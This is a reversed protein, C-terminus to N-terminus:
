AQETGSTERDVKVIRVHERLIEQVITGYEAPRELQPVHGCRDIVFVRHHPIEQRMIEVSKMSILRDERGWIISVPMTLRHLDDNLFDDQKISQVFESVRHQRLDNLVAGSFPIFYWPYRFWLTKLLRTVDELSDVLFAKGQELTEDTFVGANDSLILHRIREPHQLAVHAAIWGGLSHGLLVCSGPVKTALFEGVTGYLERLPAFPQGDNISSLGYGPLDLAIINWRRDLSPLIRVWTSASTGLGHVLVITHESAHVSREYFHLTFRGASQFGEQFGMRRYRRRIQRHLLNIFM